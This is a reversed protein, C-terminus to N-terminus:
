STEGEGGGDESPHLRTEGAGRPRFGYRNAFLVLLIPVVLHFVIAHWAHRKPSVAEAADDTGGCAPLPSGQGTSAAGGRARPDPDRKAGHHGNDENSSGSGSSNPENHNLKNGFMARTTQKYDDRKKKWQAKLRLLEKREASSASGDGGESAMASEAARIAAEAEGLTSAPDLLAAKAARLLSKPHNPDVELLAVAALKAAHYDKQKLRVAVTNGLCDLRIRAAERYQPHDTTGVQRFYTGGLLTEMDAAARAYLRLARNMAHGCDPADGEDSKPCWENRYVDNAIQKRSLAKQITFYPNLRSTDMVKQKVTVRYVVSSNPPIREPIEAATNSGSQITTRTGRGLAFKPHSWILATQGVRMFRIGMELAPLVDGDGVVVLWDDAKQFLLGNPDSPEDATRGEFSVLVAQQPEITGNDTDAGGGSGGKSGASGDSVVKMLLEKGMLEQWGNKDDQDVM